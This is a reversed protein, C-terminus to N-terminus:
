FGGPLALPIAKHGSILSYKYLNRGKTENAWDTAWEHAARKKNM